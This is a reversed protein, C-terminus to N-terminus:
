HGFSGPYASSKTCHLLFCLVKGKWFWQVFLSALYSFVWTSTGTWAAPSCLGAANNLYLKMSWFDCFWPFLHLSSWFPMKGSELSGSDEDSSALGAQSSLVAIFGDKFEEFNVQSNSFLPWCQKRCAVYTVCQAKLNEWISSRINGEASLVNIKEFIETWNLENVWDHGVRQSGMFRLVGPRGTWWWSGSNVWVLTWWTPSAM